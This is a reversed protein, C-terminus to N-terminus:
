VAPRGRLQHGSKRWDGLSQAIVKVSAFATQSLHEYRSLERQLREGESQLYSRAAQLEAILKEIEDISTAGVREILPAITGGTVKKGMDPKSNRSSMERVVDHIEGELAATVAEVEHTPTELKVDDM